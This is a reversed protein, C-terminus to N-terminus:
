GGSGYMEIYDSLCMGKFEPLISATSGPAQPGEGKLTFYFVPRPKDSANQGGCHFLRSNMIIITGADATMPVMDSVKLETPFELHTGPWTLLPGMNFTQDSLPIFVSYMEATNEAHRVDPHPNQRQAGPYSIMCSFETIEPNDTLRDGLVAGVTSIADFFLNAAYGGFYQPWDSRHDPKDIRTAAMERLRCINLVLRECAHPDCVGGIAVVGEENLLKTAQGTGVDNVSLLFRARRELMRTLLPDMNEARQLM